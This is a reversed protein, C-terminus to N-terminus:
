EEITFSEVETSVKFYGDAIEDNFREKALEDIYGAFRKQYEDPNENFKALIEKDEADTKQSDHIHIRIVVDSNIEMPM